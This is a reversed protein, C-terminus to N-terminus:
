STRRCCRRTISQGSIRMHLGVLNGQRRPRGHAQVDHDSSVPLPDHGRRAVLDAQDAHGADGQGRARGAARLRSRGRRGFGGGLMLKYVECQGVPLGSAESAAAFRRRQREAHRVVGRMEAAHLAGHREDAWPSTISIPFSTARGEPRATSRPRADGVKTALSPKRSATLGEKLMAAITETQGRRAQRCGMRDAPRRARHSCELLHRGRRDRCQWRRRFGKRWADKSRAADFSKETQRRDGPLSVTAVLMGPM